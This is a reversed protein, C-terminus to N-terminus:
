AAQGDDAVKTLRWMAVGHPPVNSATASGVINGLSAHAWLDYVTATSGAPWGIASWQATINRSASDDKNYLIVAIDGNSLPKMWLQTNTSNDVWVRSGPTMLDDQNVAIVEKNMVVSAMFSSMNRIDTAIIMPGNFLAWFSFETISEPETQLLGTELFDPDAWGFQVSSNAVAPQAMVEIIDATGQGNFSWIPLHDNNIRFMQGVSAGWEPVNDAGWECLSFIMPYGTANIADSFNKYYVHPPENFDTHCNDAKLLQVGWQGFTQADLFYHGPADGSGPRGYKCTQTGACTYLGLTLGRAKLYQVLAPIGSPFRAPDPRLQQTTPDRTTDAWCDDLHVLTYGMDRMGTSVLADAVQQVEEEFCLDLLGCLDDTCRCLLPRVFTSLVYMTLASPSPTTKDLETDYSTLARIPTPTPLPSLFSTPSAVNRAGAGPM